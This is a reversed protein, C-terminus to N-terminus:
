IGECFRGARAPGALYQDHLNAEEQGFRKRIPRAPVGGVVTYPAVDRTVVAGSAIVAGRGITVGLMITVRAGVWVDDEILCKGRPPRGSFIIPVGPRDFNHDQGTILLEPGIMVYKGAEVGSPISARPGVYGFAGMRLSRDIRSGLALYTTKHVRLVRYRVLLLLVKFARFLDRM